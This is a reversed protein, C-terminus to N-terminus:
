EAEELIEDIKVNELHKLKQFSDDPLGGGTKQTCWIPLGLHNRTIALVGFAKLAKALAIDEDSWRRLKPIKWDEPMDVTSLGCRDTYFICDRCSGEQALCYAKLMKSAEILKQNQDM